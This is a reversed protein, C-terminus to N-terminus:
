RKKFSVFNKARQIGQEIIEPSYIDDFIARLEEETVNKHKSRIARILAAIRLVNQLRLVKKYDAIKLTSKIM